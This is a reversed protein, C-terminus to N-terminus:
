KRTEIKNQEELQYTLDFNHSLEEKLIRNKRRLRKIEDIACLLEGELDVDVDDNEEIKLINNNEEDENSDRELDM